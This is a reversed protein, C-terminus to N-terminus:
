IRIIEEELVVGFKEKVRGKMIEILTSIDKEKANGLNVIFNPHKESIQAGGSKLGKLGCESLLIATPIVPFPDQKVREKFIKQFEPSLSEYAVNKFVSGANPYEMPHRTNRYNIKELIKEKIEAKDGSSLKFKAEIIIEGLAENKFISNRYAFGCESNNRNIFGIDNNNIKISSVNLINDKMEGGFAGANGRIAGGLTGPLGGAWELGSLGNDSAFDLLDKMLVGSGATLIDGLLKLNIIEPRLVVGSFGSDSFLINTGGGLIFLPLEKSRSFKIAEAVEESNGARIIYRASGGIKYSSFQSLPINELIEM